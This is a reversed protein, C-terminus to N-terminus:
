EPFPPLETGFLWSDLVALADAGGVEEVIEQFEATSVREGANRAYYERLIEVFTDDGVEVRLADLAMGGRFYVSLGFLDEIAVEAPGDTGAGRLVTYMSQPTAIEGTRGRDEFYM